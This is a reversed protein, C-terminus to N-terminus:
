LLVMYVEEIEQEYYYMYNNLLEVLLQAKLELLDACTFAIHGSKSLYEVV